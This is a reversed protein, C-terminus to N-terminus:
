RKNVLFSCITLESIRMKRVHYPTDATKINLGMYCFFLFDESKKKKLLFM